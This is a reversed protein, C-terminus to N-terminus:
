SLKTANAELFELVEGTAPEDLVITRYAENQWTSTKYDYVLTQNYDDKYYYLYDYFKNRIEVFRVYAVGNSKFNVIKSQRCRDITDNFYWTEGSPASGVLEVVINGQMLKGNCNLTKGGIVVDSVMVKGNCGLTKTDGDNLTAITANNYAVSVPATEDVASIENGNYSIKCTSM